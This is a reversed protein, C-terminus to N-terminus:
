IVVVTFNKIKSMSQTFSTSNLWIPNFRCFNVDPHRAANPRISPWSKHRSRTKKLGNCNRYLLRYMFGETLTRSCEWTEWLFGRPIVDKRWVWVRLLGEELVWEVRTRRDVPSRVKVVETRFKPGSMNVLVRVISDNEKCINQEQISHWCFLSLVM